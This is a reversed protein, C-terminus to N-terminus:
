WRRPTRSRDGRAQRRDADTPRIVNLSSPAMGFSCMLMAGTTVNPPM